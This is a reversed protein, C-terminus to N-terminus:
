AYNLRLSGFPPSGRRVALLAGAYSLGVVTPRHIENRVGKEVTPADPRERDNVLV